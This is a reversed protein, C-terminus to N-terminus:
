KPVTAVSELAKRKLEDLFSAPIRFSNGVKIAPIKRCAILNYTTSRSISAQAAFEGIRLFLKKEM